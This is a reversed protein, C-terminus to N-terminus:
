CFNELRREFILGIYDLWEYLKLDLNMQKWRSFYFM